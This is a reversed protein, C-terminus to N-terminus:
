NKVNLEEECKMVWSKLDKKTAGDTKLKRVRDGQDQIKSKLWDLRFSGFRPFESSQQNKFHTSVYEAEFFLGPYITIIKWPKDTKDFDLHDSDTTLLELAREADEKSHFFVHSDYTLHNLVYIPDMQTSSM